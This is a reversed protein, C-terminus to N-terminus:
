IIYIYYATTDRSRWVTTYGEIMYHEYFKTTYHRISYYISCYQGCFCENKLNYYYWLIVNAYDVWEGIQAVWPHSVKM